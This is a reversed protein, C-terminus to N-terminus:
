TRGKHNIGRVSALSWEDNILEYLRSTSISTALNHVEMAPKLTFFEYAYEANSSPYINVVRYKAGSLKYEEGSITKATENAQLDTMANGKM